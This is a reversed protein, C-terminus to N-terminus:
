EELHELDYKFRLLETIYIKALYLTMWWSMKKSVTSFDPQKFTIMDDVQLMM